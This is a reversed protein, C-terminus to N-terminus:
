GIWRHWLIQYAEGSKHTGEHKVKYRKARDTGHFLARSLSAAVGYGMDMGCGTTGLAEHNQDYRYGLAKCVSWTIRLPENNRMIYVDLARYMGSKSVHRLVTYVTLAERNADRVNSFYERLDQLAENAKTQDKM